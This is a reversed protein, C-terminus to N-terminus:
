LQTLKEIFAKNPKFGNVKCNKLYGALCKTKIVERVDDPLSKLDMKSFEYWYATLFDSLSVNGNSKQFRFSNEDKYIFIKDPCVEMLKIIVRPVDPNDFGYDDILIDIREIYSLANPITDSKSVVRDEYEYDMSTKEGPKDKPWHFQGFRYQAKEEPELERVWEPYMYFDDIPYTKYRQNLKRGDITLRVLWSNYFQSIARLYGESKTRSLSFVYGGETQERNDTLQFANDNVIGILGDLDTFHYLVDTGENLIRKVSAGVM